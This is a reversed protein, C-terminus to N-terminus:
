LELPSLKYIPRHIPTTDPELDIKCERGMQWPPVAKPLDKPFVAAFEECVKWISDHLDEWKIKQVESSPDEGSQGETHESKVARLIGM